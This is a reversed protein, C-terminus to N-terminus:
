LKGIGLKQEDRVDRRGSIIAFDAIDGLSAIYDKKLKIFSKTGHFSFYFNDCGKLVM